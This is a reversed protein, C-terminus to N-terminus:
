SMLLHKSFYSSTLSGVQKICNAAMRHGTEVCDVLQKELTLAALFGGAFADGAGNTDVIEDDGLKHVPYRHVESSRSETLLTPKSGHTIVVTRNRGAGQQRPYAAFFKAIEGLDSNLNSAKAYATAETENSIVIDCFPLAAHIESTFHEAIYPASLNLALIQLSAM